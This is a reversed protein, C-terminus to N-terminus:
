PIVHARRPHRQDRREGVEGAGALIRYITRESALYMGEDPLTAYTANSSADFFREAHLTELIATRESESLARAPHPRPALLGRRPGRTRRYHSARSVALAICAARTGVVGSLESVGTAIM